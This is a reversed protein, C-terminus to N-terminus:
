ASSADPVGTTRAIPTDINYSTYAAYEGTSPLALDTPHRIFPSSAVTGVGDSTATELTHFNGHCTACYQSMTGDPPQVGSAGGHCSLEGGGGSCGLAVPAQLASYENHTNSGANEEWDADEFGKVGMLFRYSNAPETALDMKGAVNKHHAGSIGNPLSSAAFRYGHCGNTGACTLNNTNVIFGNDHFSQNIGGPPGYLVGDSGTLEAINHGKRDSAGGGKLGTIYAFNGGALDTGGDHYVQPIRSTGLVVIASSDTGQAHCGLCTGRTLNDNATTNQDFTMALGGQSNHMTHCNACNGTMQAQVDPSLLLGLFTVFVGFSFFRTNQRAFCGQMQM